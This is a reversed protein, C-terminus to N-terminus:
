PCVPAGVRKGLSGLPWRSASYTHSNPLVDQSRAASFQSIAAITARDTLERDLVSDALSHCADTRGDPLCLQCNLGAARGRMRGAWMVGASVRVLLADQDETV